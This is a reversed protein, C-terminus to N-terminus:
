RLIIPLYITPLPLSIEQWTDGGDSTALLASMPNCVIQGDVDQCTGDGMVAWGIDPSIFSLDVVAGAQGPLSGSTPMVYHELDIVEIPFDNAPGLFRDIHESPGPVWLAGGDHTEFFWIDTQDLEAGLIPLLGDLPTTFTPLSYINYRWDVDAIIPRETWSLGGDITEFLKDRGPGALTWGHTLTVFQVPNGSPLTLQTWTDGGDNTHFLLGDSANSSTQQKVVVWGTLSDIFDMSIEDPIGTHGPDLMPQTIWSHGGNSTRSLHLQVTAETENWQGSMLWGYSPDLFEVALIAMDTPGLPTIDEWTLGGTHTWLM